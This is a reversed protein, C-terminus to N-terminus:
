SPLHGNTLEFGKCVVGGRGVYRLVVMFDGRTNSQHKCIFKIAHAFECICVGNM